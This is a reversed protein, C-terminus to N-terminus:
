KAIKELNGNQDMKFTAGQVSEQDQFAVMRRARDMIGILAQYDDEVTQQRNQLGGIEKELESVKQLLKDNELKLHSNEQELRGTTAKGRQLTKLFAIVDSLNIGEKEAQRDSAATIDPDTGVAEIENNTDTDSPNALYASEAASFVPAPRVIKSRQEARKKQKRQKKAIEIAQEYKKRVIANWRFGCAAGTRNLRDGVEEFADLQTSGERIHRLVTEALLLDDEHSWADQRVKTM